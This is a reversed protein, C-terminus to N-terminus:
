SAFFLLAIYVRRFCEFHVFADSLPRAVPRNRVNFRREAVPEIPRSADACESRGIVACDGGNNNNNDDQAFGRCVGASVAGEVRASM